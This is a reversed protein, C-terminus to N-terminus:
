CSRGFDALLGLLGAVDVLFEYATAAHLSEGFAALLTLLDAVDVDRDNDVDSTRSPCDAALQGATAGDGGPVTVILRQGDACYNRKTTTFVYTGPQQVAFDFTGSMDLVTVGTAGSCDTVDRQANDLSMVCGSFDCSDVSEVLVVDHYGGQVGLGAYPGWGNYSFVLTDGVSASLPVYNQHHTWGAVGGVIIREGTAPTVTVTVHQGATCHMSCAFTFTGVQTLMHEYGAGVPRREAVPRSGPAEALATTGTSDLLTGVSLAACPASAGDVVVVDHEGATYRFILTDGVHASIPAFHDHDNAWGAAGGVEIREAAVLVPALQLLLPLASRTMAMAHVSARRHPRGQEHGRRAARAARAGARAAALRPWGPTSSVALLDLDLM